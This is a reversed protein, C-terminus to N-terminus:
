TIHMSGRDVIVLGVQVSSPVFSSGLEPPRTVVEVAVHALQAELVAELQLVMEVTAGDIARGRSAIQFGGRV